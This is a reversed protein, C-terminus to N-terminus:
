CLSRPAQEMKLLHQYNLKRNFITPPKTTSDSNKIEKTHRAKPLPADPKRKLLQLQRDLLDTAIKVVSKKHKASLNRHEKIASWISDITDELTLNPSNTKVVNLHHLVDAPVFAPPPPTSPIPAPPMSIIVPHTNWKM